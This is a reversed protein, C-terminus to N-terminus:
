AARAARRAADRRRGSLVGALDRFVRAAANRLLLAQEPNQRAWRSTLERAAASLGGLGTGLVAAAVLMLGLRPWERRRPPVARDVVTIVPTTNIEDIRAAEYEQRLSLYLSNATEVQRRLRREDVILAPSTEWMRNREYFLRQSDEAARLEALAAAVRSELFDRRARARSVRQEKNFASVLAVARNAVDSSIESWRANVTLVVLSTKLDYSVRMQRRLQRVAMELARASDGSRRRLLRLLTTSDDPAATRPDPFPSALLRTLLERSSLLQAYFAPSESPDRSAGLGFQTAIGALDSGMALDGLGPPNLRISPDTTVFSATARYSPPLILALVAALLVTGGAM